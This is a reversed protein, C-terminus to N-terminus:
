YGLEGLAQEEEDRDKSFVKFSDIDADFEGFSDEDIFDYIRSCNSHEFFAVVEGAEGTVLKSVEVSEGELISTVVCSSTGNGRFQRGPNRCDM